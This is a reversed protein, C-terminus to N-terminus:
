VNRKRWWDRVIIPWFFMRKIDEKATSWFSGGIVFCFGIFVYAGISILLILALSTLLLEIYIMKDGAEVEVLLIALHYSSWSRVM